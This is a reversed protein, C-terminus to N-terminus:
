RDASAVTGGDASAPRGAGGGGAPDVSGDVTFQSLLDQLDTARDALTRASGSVQTLSSTQEEAAASVNDSEASVQRASEAVEDIMSAVEETSSAQDDTAESIEQISRNAGEVRDAIEEIADLADEITETGSDVQEGMRRMDAVAGSTSDQIDDILHEVEGTADAVESALQKIEDAVVAFGEGAEGARAAEISANLALINTQDAIDTILAVIEEIETMEEDLSEVEQITETATEEIDDMEDMARAASERGEEGITAAEESTSAIQNASSAVEEVTGSLSQMESAVEDLNEFQQEADAAIEQVSDSVQESARKTEQSGADVENSATSVEDAFERIRVITEGLDDIMANFAEAIDTMAQSQSDPDMRQTMDGAATAEMVTSFATAKTELHESLAEAERRADEADQRSEEAERRAAEADEKAAEAEEQAREAEQRQKEAARRQQVTEAQSSKLDQVVAFTGILGIAFVGVVIAQLSTSLTDMLAGSIGFWEVSVMGMWIGGSVAVLVFTAWFTREMDTDRYNLYGYGAGVFFGATAVLDVFPIVSELVM